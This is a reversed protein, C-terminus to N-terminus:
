VSSSQYILFSSISSFRCVVTTIMTGLHLVSLIFLFFLFVRSSTQERLRLQLWTPPATEVEIKDEKKEQLGGFKKVEEEERLEDLVALLRDRQHSSLSDVFDRAGEQSMLKARVARSPALLVGARAQTHLSSSNNSCPSLLQHGHPILARNSNWLVSVSTLCRKRGGVGSWSRNWSAPDCYSACKPITTTASLSFSRSSGVSHRRAATSFFCVSQFSRAAM